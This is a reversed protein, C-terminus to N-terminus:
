YWRERVNLQVDRVVHSPNINIANLGNDLRLFKSSPDLFQYYRSGNRLVSGTEGDIELIDGPNFITLVEQSNASTRNQFVQIRMIKMDQIPEHYDLAGIHVQIQALADLNTNEAQQITQTFVRELRGNIMVGFSATWKDQFRAIEMQGNWVGRYTHHSRGWENQNHTEIFTTQQGRAQFTPQFLSASIDQLALRGITTGNDTQLYLHIRGRQSFPLNLNQAFRVQCIVRFDRSASPLSRRATPGRWGRAEEEQEFDGGAVFMGEADTTLQGSIIGEEISDASAWNAMSFMEDDLVLREGEVIQDESEAPRGFLLHQDNTVIAFENCAQTFQMRLKPFVERGQNEYLIAGNAPLYEHRQAREDVDYAHPDACFFTIQAQGLRLTEALDGTSQVEALYYRNPEDLNILRAPGESYLWHNAIVRAKNRLDAENEGLISLSVKIERTGMEKGYRHAGIRGRINLTSIEMDPLFQDTISHILVYDPNNIQNFRISPM